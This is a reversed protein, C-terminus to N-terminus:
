LMNLKKVESLFREIDRYTIDGMVALRFTKEKLLGPYITFGKEYLRDHFEEFALGEPIYFTELIHSHDVKDSLYRRFGMEEMGHTLVEMSKKYRKYRNVAGEKFFEDVAQRLAYLVQVPPTFRFQGKEEFFRYQRYLDLYLSRSHGKCNEVAEKKGIVFSIGAMGQICKNSTSMIFDAGVDKISFPVGAFSSITDVVYVLAHKKVVKGMAKIDNLIGTSTEHHIVFVAGIDDTLADEVRELDIATGWPHDLTLFPIGHARAIESFRVGYLGNSLILAKKSGHTDAHVNPLVSCMTAEMAATGSGGLLVATYEKDGGAIKVLDNRISRILQAVEAERPCVDPIVLANKVSQSTTAPGPNLLINRKM